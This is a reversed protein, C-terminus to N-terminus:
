HLDYMDQAKAIATTMEAGGLRDWGTWNAGAPSTSGAPLRTIELQHVITTTGPGGPEGMAEEIIRRSLEQETIANRM